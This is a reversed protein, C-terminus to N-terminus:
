GESGTQIRPSHIQTQSESLLMLANLWDPDHPVYHYLVAEEKEKPKLARTLQHTLVVSDM